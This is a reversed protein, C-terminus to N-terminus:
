QPTRSALADEPTIRVSVVDGSQGLTREAAGNLVYTVAGADGVRLDIADKADITRREGPQM